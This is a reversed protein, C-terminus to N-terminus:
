MAFPVVGPIGVCFVIATCRSYLGAEEENINGGIHLLQQVKTSIVV